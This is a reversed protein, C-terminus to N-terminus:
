SCFFQHEILSGEIVVMCQSALQFFTHPKHDGHSMSHSSHISTVLISSVLTLLLHQEQQWVLEPPRVHSCLHVFCDAVAFSANLM